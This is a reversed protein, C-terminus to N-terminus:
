KIDARFGQALEWLHRTTDPLIQPNPLNAYSQIKIAPPRGVGVVECSQQSTRLFEGVVVM